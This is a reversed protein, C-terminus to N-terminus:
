ALLTLLLKLITMWNFDEGDGLVELLVKLLERIKLKKGSDKASGALSQAITEYASAYDQDSGLRGQAAEEALAAGVGVGWDKWYDSAGRAKLFGDTLKKLEQLSQAGNIKGDTVRSSVASYIVSLGAANQEKAKDTVKATLAKVKQSLSSNPSPAPSPNQGTLVDSLRIVNKPRELTVSGNAGVVLMVPYRGPQVGSTDIFVTTAGVAKPPAADGTLFCCLVLALLGCFTIKM